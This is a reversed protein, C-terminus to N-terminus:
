DKNGDDVQRRRKGGAGGYARRTPDYGDGLRSTDENALHTWKTRGRKGLDGRIQLVSPLAKKDVGRDNGTAESYDRLYLADVGEKRLRHDTGSQFFAGKHYYKQMFSREGQGQFNGHGKVGDGALGARVKGVFNCTLCVCVCSFDLTLQKKEGRGGGM